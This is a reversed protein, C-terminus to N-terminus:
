YHADPPGSRKDRPSRTLSRPHLQSSLPPRRAAPRARLSDAPMCARALNATVRTLEEYPTDTVDVFGIAWNEGAPRGTLPQDLYHFWHTGVILPNDLAGALYYRYSDARQVQSLGSRDRDAAFSRDWAAFHFEGVIIPRDLGDPLGLSRISTAYKNFSVATPDM